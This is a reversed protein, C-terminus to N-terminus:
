LQFHVPDYYNKFIEGGWKIGMRKALAILGSARWEAAPTAKKLHIKGKVFNLDLARGDHTGVNKPNKPNAKHLRAQETSTRFGSTIIPTWGLAVCVLLFVNFRARNLAPLLALKANNTASLAMFIIFLLFGILLIKNTRWLESLKM